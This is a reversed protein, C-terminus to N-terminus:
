RSSRARSTPRTRSVGLASVGSLKGTICQANVAYVDLRPGPTVPADGVGEVAYSCSEVSCGGGSAPGATGSLYGFHAGVAALDYSGPALAAAPLILNFTWKNECRDSSVDSPWDDCGVALNSFRLTVSQDGLLAQGSGLEAILPEGPPIGECAAPLTAAQGADPGAGILFPLSGM